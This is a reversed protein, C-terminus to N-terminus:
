KNLKDCWIGGESRHYYCVYGYESDVFRGVFINTSGSQPPSVGVSTDVPPACSALLVALLVVLILFRKM